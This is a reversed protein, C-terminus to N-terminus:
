NGNREDGMIVEQRQDLWERFRKTLREIIERKIEKEMDLEETLSKSKGFFPYFFTTATEGVVV